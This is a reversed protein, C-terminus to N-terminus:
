LLARSLIFFLCIRLFASALCAPGAESPGSKSRAGEVVGRSTRRGAREAVKVKTWM